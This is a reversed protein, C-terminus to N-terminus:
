IKNAHHHHHGHSAPAAPPVAPLGVGADMVSSTVSFYIGEPRGLAPCGAWRQLADNGYRLIGTHTDAIIDLEPDPDYFNLAKRIALMDEPKGSILNWGPGIGYVEAFQKMVEPSDREPQLSISIMHVDRGVRGGFMDHVKQLNQTVLPCVEGCEAFFANIMVVKNKILDDYFRLKQGHQNVVEANPISNARSRKRAQGPPGGEGRAPGAALALGAIGSLALFGNFLAQRRLM